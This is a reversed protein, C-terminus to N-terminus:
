FCTLTPRAVRRGGANQKEADPIPSEEGVINLLLGPCTKARAPPGCPNRRNSRRFGAYPCAFICRIAASALIVKSATPHAKEIFEGRPSLQVVLRKLFESATATSCLIFDKGSWSKAAADSRAGTWATM